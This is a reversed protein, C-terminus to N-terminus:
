LVNKVMLMCKEKDPYRTWNYIKANKIGPTFQNYSEHIGIGNRISTNITKM